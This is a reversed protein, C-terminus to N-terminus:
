LNQLHTIGLWHARQAPRPGCGPPPETAEPNELVMRIFMERSVLANQGEQALRQQSANAYALVVDVIEPGVATSHTTAGWNPKRLRTAFHAICPYYYHRYTHDFWAVARRVAGIGDPEFAARTLKGQKHADWLPRFIHSEAELIMYAGCYYRLMDRAIRGTRDADHGPDRAAVNQNPDFQGDWRAATVVRAAADFEPDFRPPGDGGGGSADASPPPVGFGSGRTGVEAHRKVESRLQELLARLATTWWYDRWLADDQLKHRLVASVLLANLLFCPRWGERECRQMGAARLRADDATAGTPLLSPDDVIWPAWGGGEHAPRRLHLRRFADPDLDIARVDAPATDGLTPGPGFVM